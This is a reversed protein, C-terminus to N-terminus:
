GRRGRNQPWGPKRVKAGALHLVRLATSYSLGNAAALSKVSLRPDAEYQRVLEGSVVVSKRTRSPVREMQLVQGVTTRSCGFDKAIVAMSSGREYRTAVAARLEPTFDRLGREYRKPYGRRRLQVQQRLLARRIASYPYGYITSLDRITRHEEVYQRALVPEQQSPVTRPDRSM